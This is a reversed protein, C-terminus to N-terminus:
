KQSVRQIFNRGNLLQIDKALFISRNVGAIIHIGRGWKKM